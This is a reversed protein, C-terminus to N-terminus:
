KRSPTCPLVRRIVPTPYSRLLPPIALPPINMGGEAILMARRQLDLAESRECAREAGKVPMQRLSTESM